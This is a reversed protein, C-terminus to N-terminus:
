AAEPNRLMWVELDDERGKVQVNRERHFGYGAKGARRYTVPDTVIAADFNRTLGGLRAALNTTNGLVSWIKRDVAQINGVFAPGTAIGIGASLSLAALEGQRLEQLAERGASLAAAEKSELARPAGFAAMLGDGHFEVIAGGHDRVVGSVAATYANIMRFTEEADQGMSRSTYGVLDIFFVSVETEGPEVDTGQVLEQTIIGPVYGRLEEYLAREQAMLTESDARELALSVRDGVGELLALDTATFLDGSLKPGLCAFAELDDSRRMPLVVEVALHELLAREEPALRRNRVWRRWQRATVPADVDLLLDPLAGAADVSPPILTGEAYAPAFADGVRAYIALSEVPLATALRQGVGEFIERPESFESVDSRLQRLASEAAVQGRFVYKRLWPQGRRALTPVPVAFLVVFAGLVATEQIGTEASLWGAVPVGVGLVAALVVAALGVYVMTATILRDIDFLHDHVLAILVFIPMLGMAMSAWQTVGLLRPDLLTAISGAVMPLVTVFLGYIIWRLQRQGRADTRWYNSVLIGMFALMITISIAMYFATAYRPGIPEGFIYSAYLVPQIALVWPLAFIWRKRPAASAPILLAARIAMPGSFISATLLQGYGFVILWRAPSGIALNSLLSFAFAALAYARTTRSGRGRLLALVATLGLLAGGFNPRLRALVVTVDLRTDGRAARVSVNGEADAGGYAAELLDIRGMGSTSRGGIELLRDGVALGYDDHELAAPLFGRVEPLHASGMDLGVYVPFWAPPHDSFSRDLSIVTSFLWLPGLTFLLVLDISRIKAV